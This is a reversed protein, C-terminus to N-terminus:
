STTRYKESMVQRFELPTVTTMKRFARAFYSSDNFSLEYAIESVTMGTFTLLRKAELMVRAQIVESTTQGTVSKCVVNLHHPTINLRNAYYSAYQYQIFNKELLERFTKYHIWYKKDLTNGERDIQRQVNTLLIQLYSQLIVRNADGRDFEKQIARILELALAFDTESLHICPNAYLNDLFTLEFLADKNARDMLFFEETFLITGGRLGKWEEFSHIQNPSIFFLSGPGLEYEQYDIAHKSRGGETWVIEYFNHKHVENIDPEDMAGFELVTFDCGQGPRNIFDDIDYVPCILNM